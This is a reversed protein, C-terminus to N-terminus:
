KVSGLADILGLGQLSMSFGLDIAKLVSSHSSLHLAVVGAVHPSAMSTGSYTSYGGGIWTSYISEGPAVFDNSGLGFNSWSTIQDSYNTAGVAIVSRYGAPITNAIDKGDNGAAVVVVVGASQANRVATKLPSNNNPNATASLSMNIVKAGARVCEKVGDAVDSLYGSGQRNLVKVAYLKAKPAVGVVGIANDLGAIIGSVHTGHGHDDNWKARNVSGNIRVFNRGGVINSMLDPHTSDIGTDVVCVKINEGRNILNAERAKIRHIGWPISQPPQALTVSSEITDKNSVAHMEIDRTIKLGSIRSNLKNVAGTPLYVVLGKVAQMPRVIFGSENKIESELKALDNSEIIHREFTTANAANLLSAFVILFLVKNM